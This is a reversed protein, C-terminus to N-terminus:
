SRSSLAKLYKQARYVAEKLPDTTRPDSEWQMSRGLGPTRGDSPYTGAEVMSRLRECEDALGQALSPTWGHASLGDDVPTTRLLETASSLADAVLSCVEDLPLEDFEAQFEAERDQYERHAVKWQDWRAVLSPSGLTHIL